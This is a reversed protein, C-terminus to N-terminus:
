SSFYAEVLETLYRYAYRGLFLFMGCMCMLHAYSNLNGALLQQMSASIGTFGPFFVDMISIQAPATHIPSSGGSNFANM